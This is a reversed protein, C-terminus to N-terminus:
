QPPLYRHCLRGTTVLVTSSRKVSRNHDETQMSEETGGRGSISSPSNARPTDRLFVLVVRDRLGPNCPRLSEPRHTTTRSRLIQCWRFCEAGSVRHVPMLM